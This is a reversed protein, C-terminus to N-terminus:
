SGQHAAIWGTEPTVTVTDSQGAASLQISFVSTLAQNADLYPVGQSNFQLHKRDATLTVKNPLRIAQANLWAPKGIADWVAYQDKSFLLQVRQTQSMAMRQAARLTAALREAEAGLRISEDPMSLRVAAAAFVGLVVLVIVFEILTFGAQRCRPLRCVLWM